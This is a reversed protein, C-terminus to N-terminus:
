PHSDSFGKYVILKQYALIRVFTGLRDYVPEVKEGFEQKLCEGIQEVRRVGDCQEWVFSGFADLQIRYDSSRGLRRIFTKLIRSRVKPKKLFVTGDPNKEWEM